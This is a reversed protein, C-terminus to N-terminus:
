FEGSSCPLCSFCKDLCARLLEGQWPKSFARKRLAWYSIYERPRAFKCINIFVGAADAASRAIVPLSFTGDRSSSPLRSGRCAAPAAHRSPICKAVREIHGNGHCRPFQVPYGPGIPPPLTEMIQFCRRARRRRRAVAGQCGKLSQAALCGREYSLRTAGAESIIAGRGGNVERARPRRIPRVARSVEFGPPANRCASSPLFFFRGGSIVAREPARSACAMLSIARLM